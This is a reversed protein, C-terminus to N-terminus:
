NDGQRRELLAAKAETKLTLIGRLSPLIANASSQKDEPKYDPRRSPGDIPNLKRARYVIDFNYQSLEKAYRAQRGLLSKITMFYKLNAYDILVEVLEAIIHM